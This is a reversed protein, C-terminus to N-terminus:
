NGEGSYNTPLYIHAALEEKGSQIRVANRGPNLEITKM